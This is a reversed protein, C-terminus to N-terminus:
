PAAGGGPVHDRVAAGNGLLGRLSERAGRGVLPPGALAVARKLLFQWNEAVITSM